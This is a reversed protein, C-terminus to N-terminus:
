DDAEHDLEFDEILQSALRRVFDPKFEGRETLLPRARSTVEPAPGRCIDIDDALALRRIREFGEPDWGHLGFLPDEIKRVTRAFLGHPMARCDHLDRDVIAKKETRRAERQEYRFLRSM